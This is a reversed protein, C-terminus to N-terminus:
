APNPNLDLCYSEAARFEVRAPAFIRLDHKRSHESSLANPDYISLPVTKSFRPSSRQLRPINNNGQHTAHSSEIIAAVGLIDDCWSAM